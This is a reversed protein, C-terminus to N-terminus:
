HDYVLPTKYQSDDDQHYKDYIQPILPDTQYRLSMGAPFAGNAPYASNNLGDSHTSYWLHLRTIIECSNIIRTFRSECHLFYAWYARVDIIRPFFFSVM